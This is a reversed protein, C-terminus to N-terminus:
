ELECAVWTGEDSRSPIASNLPPLEGYHIAYGKLLRDQLNKAEEKSDHTVYRYELSPKGLLTKMRSFTEIFYWLNGESHYGTGCKMAGALKTFRDGMDGTEGIALLCLRDIDLFRPIPHPKGDILLRLQYTAPQRNSPPTSISIWETWKM